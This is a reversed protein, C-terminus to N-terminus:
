LKVFRSVALLEGKPGYGALIYTGSQFGATQL